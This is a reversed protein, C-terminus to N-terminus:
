APLALAQRNCPREQLVGADQQEVFRGRGEVGLGFSEHLFGEVSEHASAGGEDDRVSQGGDLAGILNEDEVLAADDLAARVVGQQRLLAEIM